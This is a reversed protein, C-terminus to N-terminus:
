DALRRMPLCGCGPPLASAGPRLAVDGRRASSGCWGFIREEIRHRDPGLTTIAALADAPGSKADAAAHPPPLPCPAAPTRASRVCPIQTIVGAHACPGNQLTGQQPQGACKQGSLRKPPRIPRATRIKSVNGSTVTRCVCHPATRKHTRLIVTVQAGLLIRVQACPEPTCTGARSRGASVDSTRRSPGHIPRPQDSGPKV